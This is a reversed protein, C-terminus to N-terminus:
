SRTMYQLYSFNCSFGTSSPNGGQLRITMMTMTLCALGGMSLILDMSTLLMEVRQNQLNVRHLSIGELMLIKMLPSSSLPARPVLLPAMAGECPPPELLAPCHPPLLSAVVSSIESSGTTSTRQPLYTCGNYVFDNFDLSLALSIRVKHAHVLM